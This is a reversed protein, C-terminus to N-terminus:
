LSAKCPLRLAKTISHGSRSPGVSDSAKLNRRADINEFRVPRIKASDEATHML